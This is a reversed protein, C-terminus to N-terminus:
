TICVMPFDVQASSPNMYDMTISGGDDDFTIAHLSFTPVVVVAYHSLPEDLTMARRAVWDIAHFETPFPGEGEFIEFPSDETHRHAALIRGNM